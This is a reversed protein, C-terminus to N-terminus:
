SVEWYQIEDFGIFCNQFHFMCALLCASMIQGHMWWAFLYMICLNIHKSFKLRSMQFSKEAYRSLQHLALILFHKIFHRYWVNRSFMLYICSLVAFVVYGWSDVGCFV